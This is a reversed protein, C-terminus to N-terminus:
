AISRVASATRDVLAATEEENLCFPPGLMVIDGDTGNACGTSPYLLVGRERAAAVVRETVREERAFPAKTQGDRVLEIGIM